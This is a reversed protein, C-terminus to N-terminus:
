SVQSKKIIYAIHMLAVPLLSGRTARAGPGRRRTVAHRRSHPPPVMIGSPPAPLGLDVVEADDELTTLRVM